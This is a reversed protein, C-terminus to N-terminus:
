DRSLLIRVDSGKVRYFRGKEDMPREWNPKPTTWGLVKMADRVKKAELSRDVCRPGHTGEPLDNFM